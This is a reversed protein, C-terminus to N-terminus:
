IPVWCYWPSVRIGLEDARVSEAVLSGGREASRRMASRSTTRGNRATTVRRCLLTAGSAAYATPLM